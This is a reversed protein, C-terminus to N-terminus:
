ADKPKISKGVNYPYLVRVLKLVTILILYSFTHLNSQVTGSM